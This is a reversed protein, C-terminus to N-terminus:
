RDTSSAVGKVYHGHLPFNAQSVLKYVHKNQGHPDVVPQIFYISM